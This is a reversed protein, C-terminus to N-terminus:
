FTENPAGMATAPGERLANSGFSAYTSVAASICCTVGVDQPYSVRCTRRLLAVLILELVGHWLVHM